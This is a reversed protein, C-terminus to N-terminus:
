AVHRAQPRIVTEPRIDTQFFDVLANLEHIEAMLGDVATVSDSALRANLDTEHELDSVSKSIASIGSSQDGVAQSIQGIAGVVDQIAKHIDTLSLGTAEVFKVGSGVHRISQTILGKIEASAASAQVALMRVEHAVVAFGRGVEGARAAEVAANLSLLNTQFAIDDVYGTIETIQRASDSVLRIAAIAEAAVTSGQVAAQSTTDSLANARAASLANSQVTQSLETMTAATDRLRDAQSAARHSLDRAGSYIPQLEAQIRNTAEKIQSFLECLKEGTLNGDRQLDAFVGSFQGSIRARLDGQAYSRLVNSTTTTATEVAVFVSNLHVAIARLDEQSATEAVRASLNGMAAQRAAHSLSTQFASFETELGQSALNMQTIEDRSRGLSARTIGAMKLLRDAVAVISQSVRRAALLVIIAALFIAAMTGAGVYSLDRIMRQESLAVQAAADSRALEAITTAKADMAQAERHILELGPIETAPIVGLVVQADHFWTKQLDAFADIHRDMDASSSAARLADVEATLAAVQDDFTAKEATLTTLHTMAMVGDLLDRTQDASDRIRGSAAIADLSQRTIVDKAAGLRFAVLGMAACGLLAVLGLTTVAIFIRTRLSMM